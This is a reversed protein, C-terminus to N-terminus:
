DMDGERNLPESGYVQSPLILAFGLEKDILIKLLFFAGSMAPLPSALPPPQGHLM